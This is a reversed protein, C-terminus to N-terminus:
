GKIDRVIDAGRFCIAEVLGEMTYPDAIANVTFGNKEVVGATIPSICAIKVKRLADGLMNITSQAIASSTLAVWDIAGFNLKEVIEPNPNLVDESKYVVIQTTEIGVSELQPKLVDRGRSARFLLAKVPMQKDTRKKVDEVIAAALNEARYEDPVIQVRVGQRELEAATSAGVAAVSCRNLTEVGFGREALRSLFMNVGNVSSFVAYAYEELRNVVDDVEAWSDPPLIAIAPQIEVRAGQEELLSKLKDAQGEPRTVLVCIDAM